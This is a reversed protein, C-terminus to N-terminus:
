SSNSGQAVHAPDVRVVHRDRDFACFSRARAPGLLAYRCSKENPAPATNLRPEHTDSIEAALEAHDSAELIQLAWATVSSGMYIILLLGLAAVGRGRTGCAAM